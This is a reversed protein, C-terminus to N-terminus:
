ELRLSLNGIALDASKLIVRYVGPQLKTSSVYTMKVRKWNESANLQIVPNVYFPTGTKKVNSESITMSSNTESMSLPNGAPDLISFSLDGAGASVEMSANITKTKAAKVSLRKNRKLSEISFENTRLGSLREIESAYTQAEKNKQSVSNELFRIQETLAAIEKEHQISDSESKNQLIQLLTKQERLLNSENSNREELLDSAMRSLNTQTSLLENNTQRLKNDLANYNMQLAAKQKKELLKESLLLESQLREENLEDELREKISMVITLYIFMGM